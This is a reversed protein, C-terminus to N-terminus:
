DNKQTHLADLSLVLGKTKLADLLDVVVQVESKSKNRFGQILAVLGSHQSFFSVVSVFDQDEESYHVVTSKLSKGDASLIEQEELPVFESTWENFAKILEQDDVNMLVQRFTVFSPVPHRLGLASGFVSEYSKCFRSVGRYGTYGCMYSIVVMSFIQDLTTRLGQKRRPDKIQAFCSVLSKM